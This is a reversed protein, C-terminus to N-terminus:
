KSLGRKYSSVNANSPKECKAVFSTAWKMASMVVLARKQSSIGNNTGARYIDVAQRNTIGNNYFNIVNDVYPDIATGAAASDRELVKEAIALALGDYESSGPGTYSNSSPLEDIVIGEGVWFSADRLNFLIDSIEQPSAYTTPLYYVKTSQKDGVDDDVAPCYTEAGAVPVMLALALLAFYKFSQMNNM